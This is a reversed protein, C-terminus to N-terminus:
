PRPTQLNIPAKSAKERFNHMLNQARKQFEADSEILLLRENDAFCKMCADYLPQEDEKAIPKGRFDSVQYGSSVISPVPIEGRRAWIYEYYARKGSGEFWQKYGPDEEFLKLIRPTVEDRRGWSIPRLRDWEFYKEAEPFKKQVDAALTKETERTFKTVADLIRNHEAIISTATERALEELFPLRTRQLEAKQELTDNLEKLEALIQQKTALLERLAQERRDIDAVRQRQQEKLQEIRAEEEALEMLRKENELEAERLAQKEKYITKMNDQQQQLTELMTEQSQSESERSCGTLVICALVISFWRM